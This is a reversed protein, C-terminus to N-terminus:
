PTVEAAALMCELGVGDLRRILMRGVKGARWAAWERWAIAAGDPFVLEGDLRPTAAGAAQMQAIAADAQLPGAVALVLDIDSHAHRYPLGTVIAWGYSGYVRADIGARELAACTAQWAARVPATLLPGIAEARPFLGSRRLDSGGVVVAIRRRDWRLPAAIGLAVPVGARVGSFGPAQRTVVLPLDHAAWYRVCGLVHADGARSMAALVRRWADATIWVLQHRRLPVM